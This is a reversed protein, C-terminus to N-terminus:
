VIEKKPMKQKIEIRLISLPVDPKHQQAVRLLLNTSNQNFLKKVDIRNM